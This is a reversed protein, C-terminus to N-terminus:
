IAGTAEKLQEGYIEPFNLKGKWGPLNVCFQDRAHAAEKPCKFCGIYHSKKQFGVQAFWRPSNQCDQVGFYGTTGWPGRASKQLAEIDFAKELLHRTFEVDEHDPFNLRAWEKHYHLMGCDAIQAAVEPFEYRGLFIDEGNVTLRAHYNYGMPHVNKFVSGQKGERRRSNVANQYPTALRINSRTNLLGDGNKHDVFSGKPAELIQRHMKVTTIQRDPLRQKRQAYWLDGSYRAAYWKWQNLWDYDSASVLAVKGQTLPIEQTNSMLLWVTVCSFLFSLIM